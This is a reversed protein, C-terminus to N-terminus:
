DEVVHARFGDRAATWAARDFRGDDTLAAAAAAGMALAHHTNDPVFLGQRGFTVLEPHTAAWRELASLDHEFGVRYVPYVRPLRRVEVAVHRPDDLGEWVLSRAVAEGLDDDSATWWHDGVSCPLEACLVTRDDPDHGRGDRYNKPESLRSLPNAYAPFYHADFETYRPRDLVLYVLLLARHELRGALERVSAPPPPDVMSALAPLPATSWLLPASAARGSALRVTARGGGFAVSEVAEGLAVEAGATAAAGALAEAIAGFGRTPYLFTRGVDDPGRLLRRAMAAPGGASVRRRALEGSLRAPDTGWIKTVYPRYFREYTTPGLGSRVVEAFTDAGPRRLPATAQDFALAAATAPEVRRLLDGTRLPFAVWRDAFRLRGHRPRTQLDDGLLERLEALRAPDISPHLRHSGYDVRLGAVEFSAAMGGPRDAREVLLVRRGRRAAHWAAVLGAPGAGVVVVDYSAASGSGTPPSSRDAVDSM